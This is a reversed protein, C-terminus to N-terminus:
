DAASPARRPMTLVTFDGDDASRITAPQEAGRLDLLIDPGLAHMLAPYLTTLEFWVTLDPGTASSQDLWSGDPLMSVKGDSVSLGLTETAVQELTKVIAQKDATVRNTVPALADIMQCYDPFPESLLACQLVAGDALTLSLTRSDAKLSVTASRRLRSSARHFDTGDVTGSWPRAIPRDPVITRTALRYRDTASFSIAEPSIELHVGGLVPVEPDNVTTVLVQDIAVALVPGTASCLETPASDALSAKINAATQQVALARATAAAVQEDILRAADAESAAFYRAITPLSMDIDRLHRILTARVIQSDSYFRYGSAPDVREPRLLGADDYFRLASATLGVTRAFEGISMM